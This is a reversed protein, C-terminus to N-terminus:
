QWRERHPPPPSAPIWRHVACGAATEPRPQAPRQVSQRLDSSAAVHVVRWPQETFRSEESRWSRVSCWFPSLTTTTSSRPSAIRSRAPQRRSRSASASRRPSAKWSPSRITAHIRRITAGDLPLLAADEPAAAVDDAAAAASPLGTARHSSPVHGNGAPSRRLTGNGAAANPTIGNPSHPPMEGRSPPGTVSSTVERQQKDYLALGFPNGFTMLALKMADTEAEKLASEHAQGLDDDIGHGAGSGERIVPTQATGGVTIRVRSTYTVGWGPRNDRGIARESQSVCRTQITERQWGDFGFIRNAEAIVQWGELYSVKARGQERQRVKARDLPACLCAIQEATFTCTM